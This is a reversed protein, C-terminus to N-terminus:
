GIIDNNQPTTTSRHTKQQPVPVSTLFEKSRVSTSGMVKQNRTQIIYTAAPSEDSSLGKIIFSLFTSVSVRKKSISFMNVGKIKVDLGRGGLFRTTKIAWVLGLGVCLCSNKM